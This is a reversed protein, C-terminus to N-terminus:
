LLLFAEKWQTHTHTHTHTYVTHSINSLAAEAGCLRRPSQTWQCRHRGRVRELSLHCRESWRVIEQGANSEGEKKISM